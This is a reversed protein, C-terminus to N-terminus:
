KNLPIQFLTVEHNRYPRKELTQAGREVYWKINSLNSTYFYLTEYDLKKAVKEIFKLLETGLGRKREDSVVHLNGLWAAHKPFDSFEPESENELSTMGIPMDDKWLVFILPLQDNTLSNTFFSIFKEKTLSNDYPHWEEYLWDVLTPVVEPKEKLLCLIMSHSSFIESNVNQIISEIMTRMENATLQVSIIFSLFFVSRRMIKFGLWIITGPSSFSSGIM